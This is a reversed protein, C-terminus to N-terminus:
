GESEYQKPASRVDDMSRIMQAMYNDHITIVSNNKKDMDLVVDSSQVNTGQPDSNESMKSVSGLSATLMTVKM